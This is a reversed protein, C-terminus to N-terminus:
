RCRRKKYDGERYGIEYSEVIYEDGLMTAGGGLLGERYKGAAVALRRGMGTFSKREGSRPWNKPRQNTNTEPESVKGGIKLV